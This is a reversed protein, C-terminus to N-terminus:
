LFILKLWLICYRDNDYFFLTSLVLLFFGANNWNNLVVQNGQLNFALMLQNANNVGMATIQLNNVASILKIYPNKRTKNVDIYIYGNLFGLDEIGVM